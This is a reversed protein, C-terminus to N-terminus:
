HKVALKVKDATFTNPPSLPSIEPFGHPAKPLFKETCIARKLHLKVTLDLCCIKPELKKKRKKLGM